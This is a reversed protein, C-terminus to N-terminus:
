AEMARRLLTARIRYFHHCGRRQAISAIRSCKHLPNTRGRAPGNFDNGPQFFRAQNMEAYDGGTAQARMTNQEDIEAAATAFKSEGAVSLKPVGDTQREPRHTQGTFENLM